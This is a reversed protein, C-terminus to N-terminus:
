IKRVETRPLKKITINEEDKWMEDLKLHLLSKQDESGSGFVFCVKRDNQRALMEAKEILLITKGSGFYGDIIVKRNNRRLVEIQQKTYFMITNATSINNISEHIHDVWNSTTIPGPFKYLCFILIQTVMKLQKMSATLSDGSQTKKYKTLLITLWEKLDTKTNIVHKIESNDVNGNYIFIVPYFIWEEDLCDGLHNEFLAKSKKLQDKSAKKNKSSKAEIAIILKREASLLVFDYEKSLNTCGPTTYIDLSRFIVFDPLLEKMEKEKFKEFLYREPEEGLIEHCKLGFMFKLILIIGDSLCEMKGLDVEIKKKLWEKLSKKDINDKIYDIINNNVCNEICKKGFESLTGKCQKWTPSFIEGNSNILYLLKMKEIWEDYNKRFTSISLEKLHRIKHTRNTETLFDHFNDVQTRLWHKSHNEKLYKRINLISQLVDGTLEPIDKRYQKSDFVPPIFVTKRLKKDFKNEYERQMLVEAADISTEIIEGQGLKFKSGNGSSNNRIKTLFSEREVDKPIELTYPKLEFGAM